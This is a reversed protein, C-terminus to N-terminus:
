GLTIGVPVGVRIFDAVLREDQIEITVFAKAVDDLYGTAAGFGDRYIMEIFHGLEIQYVRPVTRADLSPTSTAIQKNALNDVEGLTMRLWLSLFPPHEPLLGFWVQGVINNPEELM